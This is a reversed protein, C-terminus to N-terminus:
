DRALTSPQALLFLGPSPSKWTRVIYARRLPRTSLSLPCRPDILRVQRPPRQAQLLSWGFFFFLFLFLLFPLTGKRNTPTPLPHVPVAACALM